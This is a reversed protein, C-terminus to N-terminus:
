VSARREATVLEYALRTPEPMVYGCCCERVFRAASELGIRHGPSVFDL